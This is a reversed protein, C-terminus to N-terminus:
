WCSSWPSPMASFNKHRMQLGKNNRLMEMLRMWGCDVNLKSDRLKHSISSTITRGLLHVPLWIVSRQGEQGVVTHRVKEGGGVAVEKHHRFHGQEDDVINEQDLTVWTVGGDKSLNHVRWGHGGIGQGTRHHRQYDSKALPVAHHDVHVAVQCPWWNHWECLWKKTM